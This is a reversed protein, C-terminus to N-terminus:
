RRRRLGVGFLGVLGLGVAGPLPVANLDPQGPENTLTLMEFISTGFNTVLVQTLGIQIDGTTQVYWTLRQGTALNANASGFDFLFSDNANSASNDALSVDPISGSTTADNISGQTAAALDAFDINTGGTAGFEFKDLSDPGFGVFEYVIVVTNLGAGPAGINGFVSATLSGTFAGAPTSSFNVALSNNTTLGSVISSLDLAVLGGTVASQTAVSTNTISAATAVSALACAVCAGLFQPKMVIEKRERQERMAGGVLTHSVSLSRGIELGM